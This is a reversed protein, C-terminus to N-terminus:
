QKCLVNLKINETNLEQQTKTNENNNIFFKYNRDIKDINSHNIEDNTFEVM